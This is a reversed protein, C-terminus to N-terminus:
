CRPVTKYKGERSGQPDRVTLLCEAYLDLVAERSVVRNQHHERRLIEMMLYYAVSEASNGPMEVSPEIM